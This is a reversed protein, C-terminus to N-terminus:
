ATEKSFKPHKTAMHKRLNDFTRNCCPCVGAAARKKIRTAVGKHASASREAEQRREREQRKEDILMAERQKLRALERRMKNEATEGTVFVQGHGAPCYWTMKEKMQYATRYFEDPMGFEMKCRHCTLIKMLGTKRNARNATPSANNAM